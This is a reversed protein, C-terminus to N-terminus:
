HNEPNVVRDAIEFVATLRRDRFDRYTAADFTLKKPEKAFEPLLLHNEINVGKEKLRGFFSDPREANKRINDTAGVFRYNGIHNIDATSLGLSNKLPSQPYIHDVHPENGKFCVNFPSAGFREVYILNLIIFRLRMNLLHDLQLETEAKRSERFYEKIAVLPFGTSLPKGVRNHMANVVNDTQAGYWNFLQAKFYYARMLVRNGEDPKPNHYLYDFLPVFSGYSRVVKDGYLKLDNAIFDRLEQVAAEARAWTAQIADILKEGEPSTFKDSTM